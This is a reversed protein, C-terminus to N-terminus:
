LRGAEKNLDKPSPTKRPKMYGFLHGCVFAVAFVVGPADFGVNIMFNSVSSGTGTRLVFVLDIIGLTVIGITTILGALPMVYTNKM